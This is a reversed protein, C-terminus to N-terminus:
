KNLYNLNYNTFYKFNNFKHVFNTSYLICSYSVLYLQLEHLKCKRKKKKNIENENDFPLFEQQVHIGILM